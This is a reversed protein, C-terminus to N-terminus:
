PQAEPPLVARPIDFMARPAAECITVVAPHKLRREASIAYFSHRVEDLRAVPVLRYRQCVEAEVVSPIACAGVDEEALLLLLATDDIEAAIRPRAERVEIWHKMAAHAASSQGSLLLPVGELAEALPREGFSASRGPSALVTTGCSGLLHSFVKVANPGTAPTDAIVLDLRHSALEDLFTGFSRDERCTLRLPTPGALAPELLRYVVAKPVVDTIGVTLSLPQGTARGHLTEQLERGLSFIEDAYRYVTQGVETLVLRRGDRRFLDEGLVGELVKIQAGVTQQALRLEESARAISGRRAVQWFYLLHHYNLWEV